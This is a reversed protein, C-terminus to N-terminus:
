FKYIQEEKDASHWIPCCYLEDVSFHKRQGVPVYLDTTPLLSVQSAHGVSLVVAPGPALCFDSQEWLSNNKNDVNIM